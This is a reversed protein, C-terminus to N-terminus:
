KVNWTGQRVKYWIVFVLAPPIYLEHINTEQTAISVCSYVNCVPLDVLLILGCVGKSHLIGNM